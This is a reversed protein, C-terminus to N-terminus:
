NSAYVVCQEGMRKYNIWKGNLNLLKQAMWDYANSNLLKFKDFCEMSLM